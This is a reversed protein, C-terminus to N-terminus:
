GKSTNNNYIGYVLGFVVGLAAEIGIGNGVTNSKNEETITEM